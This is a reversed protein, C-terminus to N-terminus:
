TSSKSKLVTEIKVKEVGRSAIKESNGVYVPGDREESAHFYSKKNSM